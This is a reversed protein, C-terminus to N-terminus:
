CGSKKYKINQGGNFVQASIIHTSTLNNPLLPDPSATKIIVTEADPAEVEVVSKITYSFNGPSGEVVPLRCFSYIVDNPTLKQGNSFTANPQLKFEWTTDNLTKWSKALGPIPRQAEDNSVLTEFVHKALSNNPSLAHFHPDASTPESSLGIKLEQASAVGATSLAAVSLALMLSRKM